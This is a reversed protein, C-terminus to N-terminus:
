ENKPQAQHANRKIKSLVRNKWIDNKNQWIYITMTLGKEVFAFPVRYKKEWISIPVNRSGFRSKFFALPSTTSIGFEVYKCGKKSADKIAYKYCLKNADKTDKTYSGIKALYCTSPNYYCLLASVPKEDLLAVFLKLRDKFVKLCTIVEKLEPSSHEHRQFTSSYMKAFDDVYKLEKDEIVVVGMKEAQNMQQTLTRSFTKAWEEGVSPQKLELLHTCPLNTIEDYKLEFGNQLLVSAPGESGVNEFTINEKLKFSLCYKSYHTEVYKIFASISAYKEVSSLDRKLLFGGSAGEPLSYLISFLIMKQKVIPFIGIIQSLTNEMILPIFKYGKAEYYYKWDYYHFFSGLEHEIFLNWSAGDEINAERVNLRMDKIAPMKQEEKSDNGM